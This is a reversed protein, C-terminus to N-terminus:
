TVSWLHEGAADYKAFFIDSGGASTLPGGGSDVTGEFFGTVLVDGEGDVAIALGQDGDTDGFRQSFLHALSQSWLPSVNLLFALLLVAGVLHNKGIPRLSPAFLGKADM